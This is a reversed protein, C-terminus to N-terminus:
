SIDQGAGDGPPLGNHLTCEAWGPNGTILAPKRAHRRAAHDGAARGAPSLSATSAASRHAPTATATAPTDSCVGEIEDPARQGACRRRRPGGPDLIAGMVWGTGTLRTTASYRRATSAAAGPATSPRYRTPDTAMPSKWAPRPIARSPGDPALTLSMSKMATVDRGSSVAAIRASCRTWRRSAAAGQRGTM